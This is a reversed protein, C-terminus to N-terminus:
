YELKQSYKLQKEGTKLHEKESSFYRVHLFHLDRDNDTLNLFFSKM